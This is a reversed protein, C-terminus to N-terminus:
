ETGELYEAVTQSHSPRNTDYYSDRYDSYSRDFYTTDTYSIQPSNSSHKNKFWADQDERRPPRNSDHYTDRYDSYSRDFYTTDTYSDLPTIHDEQIRHNWRRRIQEVVPALRSKNQVYFLHRMKTPLCEVNAQSKSRVIFAQCGFSCISQADCQECDYWNEPVLTHFKQVAEDYQVFDSDLNKDLNGLFHSQDNWQFRGCPLINGDVTVGVVRNGAGCQKEHCLTHAIRHQGDDSAFFRLLEFSLNDEIVSQGQTRIMYELMAHQAEFVQEPKMDSLNIGTGVSYVVNAKFENICIERSLWDCIEDFNQYNSSNITMLVGPRIGSRILKRYNDVARDGRGRLSNSISSPGDMSVSLHINLDKLLRIKGQDLAIINSQMAIVARKSHIGAIAHAYHSATQLWENTMLTPEGGHLLFMVNPSQTNQIVRDVLKRFIEISMDKGATIHEYCYACDLNCRHTVKVVVTSVNQFRRDSSSSRVEDTLEIVASSVM